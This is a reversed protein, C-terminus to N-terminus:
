KSVIKIESFYMNCGPDYGDDIRKILTVKSTPDLWYREAEYIEGEKVGLRKISKLIEVLMIKGGNEM